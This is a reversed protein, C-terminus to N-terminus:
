RRRRRRRAGDLTSDAKVCKDTYAAAAEEIDTKPKWGQGGARVHTDFSGIAQQMDAYAMTARICRGAKANRVTSEAASRITDAERRASATHAAKPSGLGRRRAM